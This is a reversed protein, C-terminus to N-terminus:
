WKIDETHERYHRQTHTEQNYLIVANAIFYAIEQNALVHINM